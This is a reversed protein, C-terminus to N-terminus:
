SRLIPMFCWPSVPVISLFFIRSSVPSFVLAFGAFFVASFVGPLLASAVTAASRFFIPLRDFSFINM